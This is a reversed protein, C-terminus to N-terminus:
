TKIKDYVLEIEFYDYDVYDISDCPLFRVSNFTLLQRTKTLSLIPTCIDMYQCINQLHEELNDADVSDCSYIYDRTIKEELITKAWIRM